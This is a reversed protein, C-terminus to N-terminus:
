ARYRGLSIAREIVRRLAVHAENVLKDEDFVLLRGDKVLVKGDVITTDVNSRGSSYVISQIPREYNFPTNGLNRKLIVIDAKKGAEISGIENDLQLARAGGLTAMYFVDEALICDPGLRPKQLIAALKMEVFPDLTDNCAATDAGLSVNIGERVFEPVPAIGSGLKLNCSPCHLVSVDCERM